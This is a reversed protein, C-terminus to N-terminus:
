TKRTAYRLVLNTAKLLKRKQSEKKKKKRKLISSTEVKKMQSKMIKKQSVLKRAKTRQGSRKQPDELLGLYRHFSHTNSKIFIFCACLLCVRESEM